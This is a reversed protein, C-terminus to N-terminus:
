RRLRSLRPGFLLKAFTRHDQLVDAACSPRLAADGALTPQCTKWTTRVAYVQGHRLLFGVLHQRTTDLV